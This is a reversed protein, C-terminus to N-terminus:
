TLCTSAALSALIVSSLRKDPRRPCLGACRKASSFVRQAHCEKRNKFPLLDGPSRGHRRLRLASQLASLDTLGPIVESPLSKLFSPWPSWAVPHSLRCLSPVSGQCVLVAEVINAKLMFDLCVCIQSCASCASCATLRTM